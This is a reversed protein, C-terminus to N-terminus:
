KEGLQKTIAALYAAMNEPVENTSEKIDDISAGMDGIAFTVQGDRKYLFKKVAKENGVTALTIKEVRGKNVTNKSKVIYEVYDKGQSITSSTKLKVKSGKKLKDFIKNLKPDNMKMEDLEEGEPVHSSTLYMNLEFKSGMNYVQVSWMKGKETELTYSNEKGSSPKKPGTAVKNDIEDKKIPQGKKKAFATAHQMASSFDKHFIDYGSASKGAEFKREGLEVEEFLKDSKFTKKAKSLSMVDLVMKQLDSKSGSLVGDQIGSKSFYKNMKSPNASKMVSSYKSTNLKKVEDDSFMRMSIKMRPNDAVTDDLDMGFEDAMKEFQDLTGTLEVVDGDPDNKIKGVKLGVRKAYKKEEDGFEGFQFYDSVTPLKAEDLGVEVKNEDLDSEFEEKYMNLEFPKSGGKNYVQIQLNGGKGKLRYKNTKGETPKKPGTAVKRDIESKDVTIGLKKQAYDYAHQMASSFDKHYLDYKEDLNENQRKLVAAVQKHTSLGKKIKEIQKVAGSYNGQKYRPDSAIGIAMKIEKPSYGMRELQLEQMEEIAQSMTKAYRTM